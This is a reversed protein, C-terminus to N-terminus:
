ESILGRRKEFEFFSPHVRLAQRYFHEATITKRKKHNDTGEAM